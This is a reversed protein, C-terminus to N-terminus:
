EFLVQLKLVKSGNWHQKENVERHSQSGIEGEAGAALGVNDEAYRGAIDAQDDLDHQQQVEDGGKGDQRIRGRLEELEGQINWFTLLFIHPGLENFGIEKKMKLIEAPLPDYKAGRGDEDQKEDSFCNRTEAADQVQDAGCRHSAQGEDARRVEVHLQDVSAVLELVASLPLNKCYSRHFKTIFASGSSTDM